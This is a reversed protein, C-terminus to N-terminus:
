NLSIETERINLLNFFSAENNYNMLNREETSFNTSIDCFPPKSVSIAVLATSLKM